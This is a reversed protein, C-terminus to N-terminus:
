RLDDYVTVPFYGGRPFTMSAGNNRTVEIEARWTGATVTDVSADWAYEVIASHETTAVVTCARRTAAGGGTAPKLVLVVTAGSFDIPTGGPLELTARLRPESDGRKIQFAEGRKWDVMVWAGESTSAAVTLGQPEGGLTAGLISNGLIM